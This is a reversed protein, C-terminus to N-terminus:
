VKNFILSINLFLAFDFSTHPITQKLEKIVRVTEFTEDINLLKFGQHFSTDNLRKMILESKGDGAFLICYELIYQM